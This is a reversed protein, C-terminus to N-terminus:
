DRPSPSTYLLCTDLNVANLSVGLEKEEIPEIAMYYDDNVVFVNGPELDGFCNEPTRFDKILM